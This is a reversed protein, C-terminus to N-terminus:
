SAAPLWVKVARVTASIMPGAVDHGSRRLVELCALPTAPVLAPEGALLRGRNVTTVGDVDKQPAIRDLLAGRELGQPLPLELLIGHITAAANLRSIESAVEAQTAAAPLRILDVQIGVAAGLKKKSEAYYVSAPDEGVLVVALGPM